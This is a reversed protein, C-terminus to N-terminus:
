NLQTENVNPLPPEMEDGQSDENAIVSNPQQFDYSSIQNQEGTYIRNSLKTAEKHRLQEKLGQRLVQEQIIRIQDKVQDTKFRAFDAKNRAIVM